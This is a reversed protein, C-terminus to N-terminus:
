RGMDAKPRAPSAVIRQAIESVPLRAQQALRMLQRHAAELSLSKRAMIMGAATAITARIRLM